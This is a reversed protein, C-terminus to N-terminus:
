IQRKIQRIIFSPLYQSYQHHIIYTLYISFSWPLYQTIFPFVSHYFYISLISVLIKPFANAFCAKLDSFFTFNSTLDSLDVKEKEFHRGIKLFTTSTKTNLIEVPELEEYYCTNWPITLLKIIQNRDQIIRFSIIQCM